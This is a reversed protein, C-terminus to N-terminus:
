SRLFKHMYAWRLLICSHAFYDDSVEGQDLYGTNDYDLEKFRKVISHAVDPSLAGIRVQM